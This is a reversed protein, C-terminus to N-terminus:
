KLEFPQELLVATKLEPREPFFVQVSQLFPLPARQGHVSAIMLSWKVYKKDTRRAFQKFIIQVVDIRVYPPIRLNLFNFVGAIVEDVRGHIVLNAKKDKPTDELM